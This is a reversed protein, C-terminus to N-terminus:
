TMAFVARRVRDTPPPADVAVLLVGTLTAALFSIACGVAMAAIATEGALRRTPLFGAALVALAVLASLGLFRAYRGGWAAGGVNVGRGPWHRRSRVAPEGRRRRSAGRSGGGAVAERPQLTRRRLGARRRRYAGLPGDCLAPRDLLRAPCVRRGGGRARPRGRRAAGM